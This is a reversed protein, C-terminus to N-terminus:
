GKKRKRYVLFAFLVGAALLSFTAPEPVPHSAVASLPTGGIILTGQTISAATLHSGGAVHTAGDGDIAGVAHEGDLVAFVAGASVHIESAAAIDGGAALALTGELVDTPGTYTNEGGLTLAHQGTKQIGFSGGEEGIVGGVILDGAQTNFSREGDHLDLDLNITQVSASQNVVDGSLVIKNGSLVFAGASATFTFGQFSTGAAFDNEADLRTTGSFNLLDDVAPEVDLAWNEPTTWHGDTESGGDWQIVRTMEAIGPKWYDQVYVVGGSQRINGSTELMTYWRNVGSGDGIVDYNVDAGVVGNWVAVRSSYSGKNDGTNLNFVVNDAEDVDLDYPGNADLVSLIEGDGLQLMMENALADSIQGASFRYLYQNGPTFGYNGYYVNGASDVGLGASYGGVYAFDVLECTATDFCWLSNDPAGLGSTNASLYAVAGDFEMDFNGILMTKETWNGSLDVQFIRDDTNGYNTFGVWLSDGSPDATVFSSWVGIFGGQTYQTFYDSPSGLSYLTSGDTPDVIELGTYKEFMALNDGFAGYADPARGPWPETFQDVATYGASPNVIASQGRAAPSVHLALTWATLLSLWIAPCHRM